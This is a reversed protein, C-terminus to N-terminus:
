KRINLEEIIARYRNIDSDKLYNLLKKRKSVQAYLGRKSSHDKKHKQLHETLQAIAASLIAVQVETKGSDTPKEGHKKVLEQKQDKTLTM